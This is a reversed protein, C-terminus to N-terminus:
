QETMSDEYLECLEPHRARIEESLCSIGKRIWNKVSSQAINNDIAIQAVKKQDIYREKMVLRLKDPLFEMCEVSADYIDSFIKDKTYTVYEKGDFYMNEIEENCLASISSDKEDDESTPCYDCLDSIDVPLTDIKSKMGGSNLYRLTNNYAIKYMWTSFKGADDKFSDIRFYVHEMTISLINETDEKSGTMGYIYTRLGWSCRKMLANFNKESHDDIFRQALLQIDKNEEQIKKKKEAHDVVHGPNFISNKSM